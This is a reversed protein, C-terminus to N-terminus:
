PLFVTCSPPFDRSVEQISGFGAFHITLENEQADYPLNRLFLRGTKAADATPTILPEEQSPPEAEIEKDLVPHAEAKHNASAIVPTDLQPYQQHPHATKSFEEVERSVQKNADVEEDDVLGLVRSTKSRLWDWDSVAPAALRNDDEIGTRPTDEVDIGVLKIEAKSLGRWEVDQKGRESQSQFGKQADLSGTDQQEVMQKPTKPISQYEDEDADEQSVAVPAEKNSIMGDHIPVESDAWTRSKSSPAMVELFEVLKPDDGKPEHQDRALAHLGTGKADEGPALFRRKKWPQVEDASRALEVVIRSMRIFTRNFHKVAQTAIDNSRYGVYGIRRRSILKADTIPALQSFHRKFDEEGLNPPINKVFIRSSAATIETM